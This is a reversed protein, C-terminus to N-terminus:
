HGTKYGVTWLLPQDTDVTVQADVISNSTSILEGFAMRQDTLNYKLGTTTVHDAPCGIPILGCWDGELGTDCLLTHQGKGLLCAVSSRSVLMVPVSSLERATYLSSINSLSHDLRGGFGGLAVISSVQASNVRNCVLRLCKTFDTEDQDPTPVIEVNRSKYFELTEPDASDFDGSILNPLFEEKKDSFCHGIQNVAGDTAATLVSKKWLKTTLSPDLPRNLIILAIKTGASEPLLFSLPRLITM